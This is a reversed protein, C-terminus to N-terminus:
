TYAQGVEDAVKLDDSDDHWSIMLVAVKLYSSATMYGSAEMRTDWRKRYDSDMKEWDARQMDENDAYLEPSFDMDENLVTSAKSSTDEVQIKPRTPTAM